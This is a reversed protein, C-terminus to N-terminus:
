PRPVKRPPTFRIKDILRIIEGQQERLALPKEILVHKGARMAEIALQMHSSPPTAISIIDVSSDAFIGAVQNYFATGGHPDRSGDSDCVAVVRTRRDREFLRALYGGRRAGLVGVRLRRGM